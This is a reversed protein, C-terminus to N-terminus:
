LGPPGVRERTLLACEGGTRDGRGGGWDELVSGGGDEEVRFSANLVRDLRHAVVAGESFRALGARM